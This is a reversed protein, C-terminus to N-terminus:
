KLKLSLPTIRFSAWVILLATVTAPMYLLVCDVMAHVAFGALAARGPQNTVTWLGLAGFGALALGLAGFGALTQLYLNHAHPQIQPKVRSWDPDFGFVISSRWFAGPGSGAIPSSQWILYAARWNDLRDGWHPRAMMLGQAVVGGALIAALAGIIILRKHNGIWVRIAGHQGALYALSAMLGLAAGVSRTYALGLATIVAWIRGEAGQGLAYVVFAGLAAGAVNANGYYGGPRGPAPLLLVTVALAAGALMIGNTVLARPARSIWLAGLIAAGGAWPQCDQWIAPSVAFVVVVVAIRTIM